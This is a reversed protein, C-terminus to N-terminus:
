TQLWAWKIIYGIFLCAWKGSLPQNDIVVVSLSRLNNLIINDPGDVAISGLAFVRDSTVSAFEASISKVELQSYQALYLTNAGYAISILNTSSLEIAQASRSIFSSYSFTLPLPCPLSPPPYSLLYNLPRRYLM